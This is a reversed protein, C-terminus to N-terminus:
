VVISFGSTGSTYQISVLDDLHVREAPDFNPSARAIMDDLHPYNDCYNGVVMVAEGSLGIVTGRIGEFVHLLDCWIILYDVDGDDIIYKLERSTYRTNVPVIVAGIRAIALWAILFVGCNPSMVAIHSGKEVGVARLANAARNVNVGVEGFTYEQGGEVFFWACRDPHERARAELLAGLNELMPESELRRRLEQPEPQDFEIRAM